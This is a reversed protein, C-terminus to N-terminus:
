FDLDEGGFLRVARVAVRGYDGRDGSGFSGRGNKEVGMVIDLRGSTLLVPLCVGEDRGALAIPEEAASGSVVLGADHDVERSQPQQGVAEAHTHSEEEFALFLGAARAEPVEEFRIPLAQAGIDD